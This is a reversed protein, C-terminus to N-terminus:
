AREGWACFGNDMDATYFDLLTCGGLVGDSNPVYFKCSRCRVVEDHIDEDVWLPDFAWTTGGVHESSVVFERLRVGDVERLEDTISM